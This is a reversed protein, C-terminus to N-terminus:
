LRSLSCAVIARWFSESPWETAETARSNPVLRWVMMRTLSAWACGTAYSTPLAPTPVLPLCPPLHRKAFRSHSQAPEFLPGIRAAIRKGGAVGQHPRKAAKDARKQAKSPIKVFASLGCKCM